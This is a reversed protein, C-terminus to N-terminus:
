RRRKSKQRRPAPEEEEMPLPFGDEDFEIGQLELMARSMANQLELHGCQEDTLLNMDHILQAPTKEIMVDNGREDKIQVPCKANWGIGGESIIQAIMILFQTMRDASGNNNPRPAQKPIEEAYIRPEGNEDM